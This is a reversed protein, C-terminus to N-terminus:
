RVDAGGMVLMGVWVDAKGDFWPHDAELNSACAGFATERLRSGEAKSAAGSQAVGGSVSESRWSPFAQAQSVRLGDCIREM